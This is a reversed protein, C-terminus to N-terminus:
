ARPDLIPTGTEKYSGSIDQVALGDFEKLTLKHAVYVNQFEDGASYARAIRKAVQTNAAEFKAFIDGTSELYIGYHM